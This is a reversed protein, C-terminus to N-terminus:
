GFWHNGMCDRTWEEQCVWCWHFGCQSRTCVMHMCGGDRETPTRCKPCPKTTIKITKRSDEDWKSTSAREDRISYNIKNNSEILDQSECPGIHFGQMCLRCFVFGCGSGNAQTCVIRTCEQYRAYQEEGLLKFHHPEKILSDTCGAPCDISYGIKENQIFRRENLRTTCYQLFCEICIVHQDACPFVLVLP